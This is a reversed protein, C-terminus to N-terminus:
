LFHIHYETNSVGSQDQPISNLIDHMRTKAFILISASIFCRNVANMETPNRNMIGRKTTHIFGAQVVFRQIGYTGTNHLIGLQSMM